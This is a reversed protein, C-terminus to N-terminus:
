YYLKDKNSAVHSKKCLLMNLNCKNCSQGPPLTDYNDIPPGVPSEVSNKEKDDFSMRNIDSDDIDEENEVSDGSAFYKRVLHPSETGLETEYSDGVEDLYTWEQM